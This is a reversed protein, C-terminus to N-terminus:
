SVKFSPSRQSARGLLLSMLSGDEEWFPNKNKMNANHGGRGYFISIPDNNTRQSNTKNYREEWEMYAKEDDDHLGLANDVRELLRDKWYRRRGTYIDTSIPHMSGQSDKADDFHELGNM